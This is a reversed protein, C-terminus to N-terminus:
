CRKVSTRGLWRCSDVARTPSSLRIVSGANDWAHSSRGWYRRTPTDRGPGTHVRVTGGPPIRLDGFTYTHGSGSLEWGRLDRTRKAHNKIEVWEGNLSRATRRDPGPANVSIREIRPGSADRDPTAAGVALFVALLLLLPNV